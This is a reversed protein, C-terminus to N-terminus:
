TTRARRFAADIAHRNEQRLQVGAARVEEKPTSALIECTRGGSVAVFGVVALPGLGVSTFLVPVVWLPGGPLTLQRPTGGTYALGYTCLCHGNAAIWVKDRIASSFKTAKRSISKTSM